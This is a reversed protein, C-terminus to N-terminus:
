AEDEEDEDEYDEDDEESEDEGTPASPPLAIEGYEEEYAEVYDALTEALQKAAAPPLTVNAVPHNGRFSEQFFVLSFDYFSVGVMAQQSYLVPLDPTEDPERAGPSNESM